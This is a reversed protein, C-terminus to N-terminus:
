PARTKIVQCNPTLEVFAHATGNRYALCQNQAEDDVTLRPDHAIDCVWDDIIEESLCPGNVLDRGQDKAQQCLKQCASVAQETIKTTASKPGCGLVVILGCILVLFIKIKVM